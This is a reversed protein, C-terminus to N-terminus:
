AQARTKDQYTSKEAVAEQALKLLDEKEKDSLLTDEASTKTKNMASQIIGAMKNLTDDNKISLEMYKAILPVLMTADGINTILEKLQEILGKIQDEKESSRFYVEELIDSFRKKKFVIKDFESM